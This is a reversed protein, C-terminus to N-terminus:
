TMGSPRSDASPRFRPACRPSSARVVELVREAGFVDGAPSEAEEIGDTLLLVLDGPNLSLAPSESYVTDPLLGLPPGGRLLRERVAGAADLVYGATHGANAFALRREAPMLRAPELEEDLLGM